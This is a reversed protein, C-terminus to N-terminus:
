ARQSPRRSLALAGEVVPEELLTGAVPRAASSVPSLAAHVARALEDRGFPTALWALGTSTALRVREDPAHGSVIMGRQGPVLRELREFVALGDDRENLLMDIIVLDFRRPRAGQCIALAEVGSRITEIEYGLRTLVRRATRLQVPDDDVV